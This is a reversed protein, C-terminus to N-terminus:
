QILLQRLLAVRQEYDTTQKAQTLLQEPSQIHQQIVHSPSPNFRIPAHSSQIVLGMSIGVLIAATAMASFPRSFRAGWDPRRQPTRPASRVRAKVWERQTAAMLRWVVSGAVIVIVLPALHM